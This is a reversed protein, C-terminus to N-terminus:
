HAMQRRPPRNPPRYSRVGALQTTSVLDMSGDPWDIQWVEGDGVIVSDVIRGLESEGRVVYRGCSVGQGPTCGDGCGPCGVVARVRNGM